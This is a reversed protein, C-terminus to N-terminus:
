RLADWWPALEAMGEEYGVQVIADFAKVDTMGFQRVPPSVIVDAASRRERALALTGIETSRMILTAISPVRYRKSFPLWRSRFLAWTGPTEAFDVKRTGRFSVDVAVIQSVPRTLMIDVPLNNLVAGDVVLESNVVAPPLVGPLAASARLADVLDGHEHVHVEGRDLLSSVCFFPIPLDEIAVDLNKRLLRVMRQGRILSILPLTYDSFPKGKVFSERAMATAHEPTWDMAIAAGVISGISSGGVWDVPIGLEVMARYVGLEALGRVAGAGLVLGVAQGSLVRVLRDLDKPHDRRCHLHFDVPQNKLWRSTNRIAAGAGHHLVLAQKGAPKLAQAEPLQGDQSGADAMWLTIDSQRVAFRAWPYDRAECIYVLLPYQDERDELWERLIPSLSGDANLGDRPAGAAALRRPSVVLGRGGKCLRAVLSEVGDRVEASDHQRVLCLTGFARQTNGTGRLNRQMLRSVHTALKLVMAPHRVALTQFTEQDLRILLSDRIARIGASRPDGSLVGAEGVSDGPLVEGLLIRSDGKGKLAQLRGRVLFYLSDGPDGEKFLWDGGQLDIRELLDQLGPEAAAGFYRQLIELIKRDTENM